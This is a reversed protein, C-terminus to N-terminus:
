PGPKLAPAARLQPHHPLRPRRPRRKRRRLRQPLPAPPRERRPHELHRRLQRRPGAALRREHLPERRRPGRRLAPPGLPRPRQLAAAHGQRLQVHGRVRLSERRRPRLRTGPLLSLRALHRLAHARGRWSVLGHAGCSVTTFDGLFESGVSRQDTLQFGVKVALEKGLPHTYELNGYATNFVDPVYYNAAYLSLGKVLTDVSSLRTLILGRNHDGSVGAEEAMNHFGHEARQKQQLIYGVNYGIPGLLGKFTAAEHLNPIMRNDQPNVYGEDILQRYGTLVVYDKYRLQGYAQGLTVIAEQGTHLLGTGDKDDPAYLPQSTYGVAGIAFTDALWGSKYEIWGGGAWAENNSDKASNLRNFYFSRVHLNFETDRLFPPLKQMEDDLGPVYRRLLPLDEPTTQAHTITAALLL